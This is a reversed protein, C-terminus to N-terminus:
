DILANWGGGRTKHYQAKKTGGTSKVGLAYSRSEVLLKGKALASVQLQVMTGLLVHDSSISAAPRGSCGWNSKVFGREQKWGVRGLM